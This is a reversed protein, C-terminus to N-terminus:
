PWACRGRASLAGTGGSAGRGLARLRGNSLLQARRWPCPARQRPAPRRPPAAAGRARPAGAAGACRAGRLFWARAEGLAGRQRALLGRTHCLFGNGPDEAELRALLEEAREADGARLLHEAFAHLAVPSAPALALAERYLEGARAANGARSELKAAAVLAPAHCRGGPTAWLRELARRAAPQSHRRAELAARASLLRPHPGISAEAADFVARARVAGGLVYEV